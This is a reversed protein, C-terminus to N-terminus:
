EFMGWAFTYYNNFVLETSTGSQAVRWLREKEDIFYVWTDDLIACSNVFKDYLLTSNGTVLNYALLGSQTAIYVTNNYVNWNLIDFLHSHRVNENGAYILEVAKESSNLDIKYVSETSDNLRASFILWGDEVMFFSFDYGNITCVPIDTKDTINYKRLETTYNDKRVSYYVDDYVTYFWKVKPGIILEKSEKEYIYLDKLMGFNDWTDPKYVLWRDTEQFLISNEQVINLAGNESFTGDVSSYYKMQSHWELILQGDYQHISRSIALSLSLFPLEGDWFLRRFGNETIEILGYSFVDSRYSYYIKDDIRVLQGCALYNNYSNDVPTGTIAIEVKPPQTAFVLLVTGCVSLILAFVLVLVIITICLKM